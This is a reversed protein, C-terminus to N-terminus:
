RYKSLFNIAYKALLDFEVNVLYGCDLYKLNTNELTHSIINIVIISNDGGDTKIDAITLSIGNIAISGEKVCYVIFENPIVVGLYINNEIEKKIYSIKCTTNIHGSVFHGGLRDSSLLALEMNVTDNLKLLGLNTKKLTESYSEFKFSDLGLESVTQCAGNISVSDGLKILNMDKFSVEFIKKNEYDQISLISGLYAVLGTFM